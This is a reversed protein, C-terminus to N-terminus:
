KSETVYPLRSSVYGNRAHLRLSSLDPEIDICFPLSWRYCDSFFHLIKCSFQATNICKTYLFYKYM